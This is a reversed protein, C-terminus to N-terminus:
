LKRVKKVMGRPILMTSRDKDDNYDSSLILSDNNHTTYYGISHCVVPEAKKVVDEDRWGGDIFADWWVIEVPENYKLRPIRIM